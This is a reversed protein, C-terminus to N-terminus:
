RETQRKEPLRLLTVEREGREREGRERMEIQSLDIKEVGKELWKRGCAQCNVVM